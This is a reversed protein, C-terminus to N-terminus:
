ARVARVELFQTGRFKIHYGVGFDLELLQALTMEAVPLAAEIVSGDARRATRNVTGDHLVVCQLDQTVRITVEIADYGQDAAARFAPMTNEPNEASVGRVALLKM